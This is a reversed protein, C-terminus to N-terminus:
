DKDDYPSKVTNKHIMPDHPINQWYYVVGMGLQDQSPTPIGNKKFANLLPTGAYRSVSVGLCYKGMMGRGSYPVMRPLERWEYGAGGLLDDALENVARAIKQSIQTTNEALLHDYPKTWGGWKFEKGIKGEM